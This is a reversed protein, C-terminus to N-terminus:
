QVKALEFHLTSNLPVGLSPDDTVGPHTKTATVYGAKSARLTIPVNMPLHHIFFHGNRTVDTKGVEEAPALVEVLVSAIPTTFNGGVEAVMGSLYDVLPVPTTGPDVAYSHGALSWKGSYTTRIYINGRRLPAVVGPGVVTAVDTDIQAFPESSVSWNALPTVDTRARGDLWLVTCHVETQVPACVPRGLVPAPPPKTTTRTPETPAENSCSSIALASILACVISRSM